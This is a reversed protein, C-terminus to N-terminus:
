KKKDLIVRVHLTVAFELTIPFKKLTFQQRLFVKLSIGLTIPFIIKFKYFYSTIM